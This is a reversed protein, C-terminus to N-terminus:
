MCYGIHGPVSGAVRQEAACRWLYKAGMAPTSLLVSLSCKHKYIWTVIFRCPLIQWVSSQLWLSFELVLSSNSLRDAVTRCCPSHWWQLMLVMPAPSCSIFMSRPVATTIDISKWVATKGHFSHLCWWLSTSHQTIPMNTLVVFLKGSWYGAPYSEFWMKFYNQVINRLVFATDVVYWPM